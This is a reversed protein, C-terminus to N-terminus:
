RQVILEVIAASAEIFSQPCDKAALRLLRLARQKEGNALMLEGRYFNAECVIGDGDSALTQYYSLEGLFQRLLPGPWVTLDVQKATRSLQRPSGTRREAIDLWLVFYPNRPVLENAKRFDAAADAARDGILFLAVGRNFYASADKPDIKICRTFDDIARSNNGMIYYVLGRNFYAPAYSEDLRISINFDLLAHDFDGRAKQLVGREFIALAYNPELQTAKNFDGLAHDFDRKRKYLEGRSTYAWANQPDIRIAENFDELAREFDGDNMYANGRNLYAVAYAPDLRIAENCDSLARQPQHKTWWWGCRNSLAAVRGPASTKPDAIARDCAEINQDAKALEGLFKCRELDSWSDAIVPNALLFTGLVLVVLRVV